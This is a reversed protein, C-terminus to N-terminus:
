GMQNERMRFRYANPTVKTKQKFVRCFYYVTEFGTQAAIESISLDTGMLLERARNIRIEAQFQVPSVGTQKKFRRRFTSDSMGLGHALQEFYISQLAQRLIRNQAEHIVNSAHGESGARQIREQIRGLIEIVRGASSLPLGAPDQEVDHLLQLFCQKLGDNDGVHLVSQKPDFFPARMLSDAQAGSFGVWYEEWGTKPDPAYRHWVGPFLVLVDGTEVTQRRMGKVEFVGRGQTLYVAQYEDLTRGRAWNFAYASPHGAPPYPAGPMISATGCDTLFLGWQQQVPLVPLYRFHSDFKMNFDYCFINQFLVGM